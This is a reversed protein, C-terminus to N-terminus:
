CVRTLGDRMYSRVSRRSEWRITIMHCSSDLLALESIRRNRYNAISSRLTEIESVQFLEVAVVIHALGAIEGFLINVINLSLYLPHKGIVTNGHAYEISVDGANVFRIFDLKVSHTPTIGTIRRYDDAFAHWGDLKPKQEMIDVCVSIEGRRVIHYHSKAAMKRLEALVM